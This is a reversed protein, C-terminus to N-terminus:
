ARQSSRPSRAAVPATTPPSSARSRGPFKTIQGASGTRPRPPRGAGPHRVRGPARLRQQRRRQTRGEQDPRRGRRDTLRQGAAARGTSRGGEAQRRASLSRHASRRTTSRCTTTPRSSRSRVTTPSSRVGQAQPPRSPPPPRRPTSPTSSSPRSARRWRRTRRSSSSPPDAQANLYVVECGPCLEKLKAEFLPKDQLEYRTSAIDPMLFAIKYNEAGSANGEPTGEVAQNCAAMSLASSRQRTRLRRLGLSKTNM